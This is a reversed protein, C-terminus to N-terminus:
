DDEDDDGDDHVEWALKAAASEVVGRAPAPDPAALEFNIAEVDRGGDLVVYGRLRLAHVEIWAVNTSERNVIVTLGQAELGAVWASLPTPGADWAPVALLEIM